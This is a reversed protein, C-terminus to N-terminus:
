KVRNSVKARRNTRADKAVYNYSLSESVLKRGVVKGTLNFAKRGRALDLNEGILKVRGKSNSKWAEFVFKTRGQRGSTFTIIGELTLKNGKVKGQVTKYSKVNNYVEKLYSEGLNDFKDEDFEDIEVEDYDAPIVEEEDEEKFKDITEDSLPKIMEEDGDYDKKEASVDIKERDTQISINQIEEKLDRKKDEKSLRVSKRTKISETMVKDEDEIKTVNITIDDEPEYETVEGILTFGDKAQCHSCEEEKNVIEDDEVDIIIEDPNKYILDHCSNCQIIVKGIYNDEIDDETEANLDTVPIVDVDIDDFYSSFEEAGAKDLDFAEENLGQLATFAEDLCISM